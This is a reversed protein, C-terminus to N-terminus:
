EQGLSRRVSASSLVLMVAAALGFGALYAPHWAAVLVALGTGIALVLQLIASLTWSWGRRRRAGRAAVAALIAFVFAAGAGFRIATSAGIAAEVGLFREMGSALSSLVVALALTGAAEILMLGRLLALLPRRAVGAPALPTTTALATM